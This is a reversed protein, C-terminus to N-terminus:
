AQVFEDVDPLDELHVLTISQEALFDNILKQFLPSIINTIIAQNTDIFKALNDSLVNSIITSLEASNILGTFDFHADGLSLVIALDQLSTGNSTNLKGSFEIEIDELDVNIRGDGYFPVLELLLADAVYKTTLHLEALSLAIDFKFTIANVSIKKALLTKLGTLEVDSIDLSGSLTEGTGFDIPVDEVVLPETLNALFNNITNNIAQDIIGRVDIEITETGADENIPSASVFYAMFAVAVFAVIRM